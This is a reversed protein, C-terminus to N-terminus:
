LLLLLYLPNIDAISILCYQIYIAVMFSSNGTNPIIDYITIYDRTVAASAYYFAKLEKGKRV